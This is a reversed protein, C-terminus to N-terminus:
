KLLTMRRTTQEGGARLTYFYVGSAVFTGQTNRGDWTIRKFGETLTGDILTRVHRGRVDYVKLDVDMRDPLVFTIETSPNFPNPHNQQLEIDPGLVRDAIEIGTPVDVMALWVSLVGSDMRMWIPYVKSDLAAVNIYDGFFVTEVPTFPTASV